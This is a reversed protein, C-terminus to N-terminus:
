STPDTDKEPHEPDEGDDEIVCDFSGLLIIVFVGLDNLNNDLIEAVGLNAECGVSLRRLKGHHVNFAVTTKKGDSSM